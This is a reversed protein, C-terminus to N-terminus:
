DLCNIRVDETVIIESPFFYKGSIEKGKPFRSQIKFMELFYIVKMASTNKFERVGLFTSPDIDLFDRKLSVKLLLM